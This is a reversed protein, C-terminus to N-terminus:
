EWANGVLDFVGYPSLDGGFSIVPEIQGPERPLERSPSSNGWPHTRGDTTCDAMEWQAETPLCKGTWALFALADAYRAQM